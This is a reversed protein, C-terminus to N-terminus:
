RFLAKIEGLSAPQVGVDARWAVFRFVYGATPSGDINDTAWLYEGDWGLGQLSCDFMDVDFSYCVSGTTPNLAFIKPPGWRAGVFLYPGGPSDDNYALGHIVATGFPQKVTRVVSGTSTAVCLYDRNVTAYWLPSTPHTDDYDLASVAYDPPPPFHTIDEGTLASRVYIDDWYSGFYLHKRAEDYGLSWGFSGTTLSFSAVVSGDSPRRKVINDAYVVWVYGADDCTVGLPYVWQSHHYYIGDWSNVISGLEAGAAFTAAFALVALKRM